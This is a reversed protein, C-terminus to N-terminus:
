THSFGSGRIIESPYGALGTKYYGSLLKNSMTQTESLSTKCGSIHPKMEIGNAASCQAIVTAM